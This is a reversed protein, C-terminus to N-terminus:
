LRMNLTSRYFIILFIFNFRLSYPIVSSLIIMIKFLADTHYPNWNCCVFYCYSNNLLIIKTIAHYNSFNHHFLLISYKLYSIRSVNLVRMGPVIITRKCAHKFLNEFIYVNSFALSENSFALNTKPFSAATSQRRLRHADISPSPWADKDFFRFRYNETFNHYRLEMGSNGCTIRPFSLKKCFPGSDVTM